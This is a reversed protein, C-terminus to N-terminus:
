YIYAYQEETQCMWMRQERLQRVISFVSLPTNRKEGKFEDHHIMGNIIALTTGTRGVGARCHILLKGFDKNDIDLQHQDRVFQTAMRMLSYFGDKSDGTPVAYDAWGTFHIHVVQAKM